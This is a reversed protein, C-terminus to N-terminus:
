IVRAAAILVLFRVGLIIRASSGCPRIEARDYPFDYAAERQYTEIFFNLRSPAAQEAHRM